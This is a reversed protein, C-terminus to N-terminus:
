LLSTILKGPFINTIAQIIQENLDVIFYKPMWGSNWGKLTSLCDSFGYLKQKSLMFCSVIQFDVNTRVLLLYTRFTLVRTASSNHTVEVIYVANGYKKLLRAQSPTQFCFIFAMCIMKQLKKKKQETEPSKSLILVEEMSPEELRFCVNYQHEELRKVLEDMAEEDTFAFRCHERIRHSFNRVDNNRPFYKRRNREPPEKNYFLNDEVHSYVANMIETAGKFELTMDQIMFKLEKLVPEKCYM